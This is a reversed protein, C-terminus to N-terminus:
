DRLPGLDEKVGANVSARIVQEAGKGALGLLGLYVIISLKSVGFLLYFFACGGIGIIIMVIGMALASTTDGSRPDVKKGFLSGVLATAQAEPMGHEEIMRRVVVGGGYGEAQLARAKAEWVEADTQRKAVRKPASPM